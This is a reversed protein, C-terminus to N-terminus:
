TTLTRNKTRAALIEVMQDSFLVIYYGIGQGDCIEKHAKETETLKRKSPPQDPNKVEVFFMPDLMVLLDAGQGESLELYPVGYRQLIETILPENRDRKGIAHRNTM